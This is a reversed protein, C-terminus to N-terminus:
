SGSVICEIGAKVSCKVSVEKGYQCNADFQCELCYGGLKSCEANTPCVADIDTFNTDDITPNTRTDQFSLSGAGGSDDTITKNTEKDSLGGDDQQVTAPTSPGSNM